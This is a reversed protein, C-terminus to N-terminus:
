RIIESKYWKEQFETLAKIQDDTYNVGNPAVVLKDENDNIRHVIAIVTGVYEEVPHFHGVVYADQEEGDGGITNPIFGYNLSYIWGYEENKTGLARDIKVTVETGLYNKIDNMFKEGRISFPSKLGM